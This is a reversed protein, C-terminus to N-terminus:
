LGTAVNYKWLDNLLDLDRNVDYGAGGFLWLNGSADSWSISNQRAGPQNNAAATGQTGYVGPQDITNSGGMWTWQGTNTNYKWLDNLLNASGSAAYGQGGFLWINGSADTWSISGQRAGPQNSAAAVGKTGYVGNQNTTNSGGVWTWQQAILQTTSFALFFCLACIRKNFFHQM